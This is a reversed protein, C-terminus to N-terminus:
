SSRNHLGRNDIQSLIKEIPWGSRARRAVTRPPIGLEIAWQKATQTKDMYTLMVSRQTNSTQMERTAWRCNSPEYSGHVNKRDITHDDSPPDGMDEYFAEFSEMWRQCVTIGRGGYAPFHDNNPNTCRQKMNLWVNYVRTYRMGHITSSQKLAVSVRERNLCGCSQTTGSRLNSSTVRVTQGCQCECLWAAHCGKKGDLRVARLRGFQQDTLDLVPRGM